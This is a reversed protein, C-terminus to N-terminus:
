KCHGFCKSIKREEYDMRNLKLFLIGFCIRVWGVFIISFIRKIEKFFFRQRCLFLNHTNTYTWFSILISHINKKHEPDPDYGSYCHSEPDVFHFLCIFSSFFVIFSDLLYAFPSNLNFAFWYFSISLSLSSSRASVRVVSFFSSFLISYFICKMTDLAHIM